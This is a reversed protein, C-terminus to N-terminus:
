LLLVYAHMFTVILTSRKNGNNVGCLTWESWIEESVARKTEGVRCAPTLRLSVERCALMCHERHTDIDSM